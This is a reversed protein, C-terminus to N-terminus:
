VRFTNTQAVSSGSAGDETTYDISVPVLVDSGQQLHDVAWFSHGFIKPAASAIAACMKGSPVDAGAPPPTSIAAAESLVTTLATRTLGLQGAIATLEAAFVTTPMSSM